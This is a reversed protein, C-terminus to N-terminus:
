ASEPPKDKPTLTVELKCGRERGWIDALVDMIYHPNIDGCIHVKDSYDAQKM